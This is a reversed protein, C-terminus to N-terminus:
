DRLTHKLPRKINSSHINQLNYKRYKPQEKHRLAKYNKIYGTTGQEFYEERNENHYELRKIQASILNKYVIDKIQPNM